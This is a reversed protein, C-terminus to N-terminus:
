FITQAEIYIRRNAVGRTDKRQVSCNWWRFPSGGETVRADHAALRGAGSGRWRDQSTCGIVEYNSDMPVVGPTTVSMCSNCWCDFWRQLVVGSSLAKYGFSKQIGVVSDYEEEVAPREIDGIGARQVIVRNIQFCSRYVILRDNTSSQPV